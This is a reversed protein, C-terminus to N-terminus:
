EKKPQQHGTTSRNGSFIACIRGIRFRARALGRQSMYHARMVRRQGPQHRQYLGKL